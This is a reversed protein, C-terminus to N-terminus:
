GKGVGASWWPAPDISQKDRRFEVYLTPRVLMNNNETHSEIAGMVAIPEGALVFQGVTAQVRDMGAIVVHYGGGPNIILLQGYSRFPGAYIIWGDCPSIVQAAARTEIHMGKSVAGYRDTQAFKVAIKGQVPLPLLGQTKAFPIAPKMRGPQMLAVKAADPALESSGKDLEAEYPGLDSQKAVEADLTPLMEELSKINATNIKAVSKLGELNVQTSELQERNEILLLDIQGKLRSAQGQEAKRREEQLEADKQISELQTLDSSIQTALKEIDGYFTALVMGSRIMRLADRSHTIILPPPQRGMNQMLIFLASMQASKDDFKARQEQVKARTQSLKDEIEGLRKESNRLARATEILRAQMRARNTALLRSDKYLEQQQSQIEELRRKRRIYLERAQSIDLKAEDSGEKGQRRKPNVLNKASPPHAQKAKQAQDAPDSTAEATKINGRFDAEEANAQLYLSAFSATAVAALSLFVARPRFTKINM